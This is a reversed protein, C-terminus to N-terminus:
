ILEVIEKLKKVAARHNKVRKVTEDLAIDGELVERLLKSTKVVERVVAIEDSTGRFSVSQSHGAAASNLVAFFIQAHTNSM